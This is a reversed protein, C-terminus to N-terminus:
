FFLFISFQPYLRKSKRIETVRYATEFFYQINAEYYNCTSYTTLEEYNYYYDEYIIALQNVALFIRIAM